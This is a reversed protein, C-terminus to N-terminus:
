EDHVPSHIEEIGERIEMQDYRRSAVRRIKRACQIRGATRFMPDSDDSHYKDAIQKALDM